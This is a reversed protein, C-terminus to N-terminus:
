NWRGRLLLPLLMVTDQQGHTERGAPHSRPQCGPVCSHAAALGVGALGQAELQKMLKGHASRVSAQVDAREDVRDQAQM